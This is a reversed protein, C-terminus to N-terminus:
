PIASLIDASPNFVQEMARRSEEIELLDRYMDSYVEIMAPGQYGAQAMARSLAAFDYDGRGPMALTVRGDPQHFFDCLHLNVIRNGLVKVFDLPDEGARIAQKIDLTYHLSTGLRDVLEKAIEPRSFMCWSVNELALIIGADAAMHSLNELIAAQRDLNVNRSMDLNKTAGSFRAAGHMVYVRAGLRKGTKLVQRYINEADQRQRPHPSFLQPEFQTSMPHISYIEPGDEGLTDLLRRCFDDSYETFTNLFAEALPCGGARIHVLAEELMMQNFYSATSIGIKMHLNYCPSGVESYGSDDKPM